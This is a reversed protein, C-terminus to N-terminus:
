VEDNESMNFLVGEDHTEEQGVVTASGAVTPFTIPNLTSNAIRFSYFM